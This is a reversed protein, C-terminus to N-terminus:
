SLAITLPISPTRCTRPSCEQPQVGRCNGGLRSHPADLLPSPEEPQPRRDYDHLSRAAAVQLAQAQPLLM